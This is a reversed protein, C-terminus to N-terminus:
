GHENARLSSMVPFSTCRFLFMWLQEFSSFSLQCLLDSSSKFRSRRACLDDVPPTDYPYEKEMEWVEIGDTENSHILPIVDDNLEVNDQILCNHSSEGRALKGKIGRKRKFKKAGPKIYESIHRKVYSRIPTFKHPLQQTAYICGFSTEYSEAATLSQSLLYNFILSSRSIPVLPPYFYFYWPRKRPTQWRSCLWVPPM